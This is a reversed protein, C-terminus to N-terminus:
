KALRQLIVVPIQRTTKKEYDAFGPSAVKQREWIAEREDDIALRAQVDFTEAGVEIRARGHVLLNHYWAPNVPAGGKSAFVAYDNGIRLYALPHVREEGSRAGISHLILISDFGDVQGDNARFAAIVAENRPNPEAM